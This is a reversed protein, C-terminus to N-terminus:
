MSCNEIQSYFNTDLDVRVHLEETNPINKKLNGKWFCGKRSPVKVSGLKWVSQSNKLILPKVLTVVYTQETIQVLIESFWENPTIRSSM